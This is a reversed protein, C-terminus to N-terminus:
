LVVYPVSQFSPVYKGRPVRTVRRRVHVEILSEADSKRRRLRRRAARSTPLSSRPQIEQRSPSPRVASRGSEVATSARLARRARRRRLRSGDEGARRRRTVLLAFREPLTDIPDYQDALNGLRRVDSSRTLRSGFTRLGATRKARSSIISSRTIGDKGTNQTRVAHRPAPEGHEEADLHRRSSRRGSDIATSRVVTAATIISPNPIPSGPPITPSPATSGNSCAAIALASRRRLAILLSKPM